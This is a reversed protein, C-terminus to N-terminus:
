PIILPERFTLGEENEIFGIVKDILRIRESYDQIKKGNSDAKACTQKMRRLQRLIWEKEDIIM